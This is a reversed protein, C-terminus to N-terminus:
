QKDRRLKVENPESWHDLWNFDKQIRVRAQNTLQDERSKDDLRLGMADIGKDLDDIFISLTWFQAEILQFDTVIVLFYVALILGAMQDILFRDLQTIM